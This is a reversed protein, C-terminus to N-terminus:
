MFLCGFLHCLQIKAADNFFHHGALLKREFFCTFDQLVLGDGYEAIADLTGSLGAVEAVVTEVDDDSLTLALGVFFGDSVSPHRALSEEREFFGSLFSGDDAHEEGVSCLHLKPRGDFRVEGGALGEVEGVAEGDVPAVARTHNRRGVNVDDHHSGFAGASREAGHEKFSASEVAGVSDILISGTVGCVFHKGEAYADAGAIEEFSIEFAFGGTVEGAFAAREHAGDLAEEECLVFSEAFVSM